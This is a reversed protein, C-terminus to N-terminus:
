KCASAKLMVTHSAEAAGAYDVHLSATQETTDEAGKWSANRNSMKSRQCKMILM